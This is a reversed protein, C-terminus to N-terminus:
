DVLQNLLWRPGVVDAGVARLRVGLERDATVVVAGRHSDAIAVIADDGEGPAHVVQVGDADSEAAGQRARGEFVLVVPTELRGQRTTARVQEAFREAAGARDRWWGTPRSGIVNAADVVLMLVMRAFAVVQVGAVSKCAHRSALPIARGRSAAGCGM